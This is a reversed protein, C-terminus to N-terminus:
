YVWLPGGFGRHKERGGMIAALSYIRDNGFREWFIVRMEYNM